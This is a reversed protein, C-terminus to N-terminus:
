SNDNVVKIKPGNIWRSNEITNFIENFLKKNKLLFSFSSQEAKLEFKLLEDKNKAQLINKILFMAKVAVVWEWKSKYKPRKREKNAILIKYISLVFSSHAFGLLNRKVYDVSIRSNPIFHFFTLKDSYWIKYGSLFLAYCLEHDEGCLLANGNRGTLQPKFGSQFLNIIASKRYTCGAGYVQPYGVEGTGAGQTGTAYTGAYKLISNSPKTEFYPFGLGGLAGIQENEKLIKFVNSIYNEDLWNDDDCFLLYEYGAKEIGKERAFSLGPIPQDVIYLPTQFNNGNWTKKVVEVTNDTSANNVVIVEWLIQEPVKQKLLHELTPVIRTSSNYCCIIVSVGIM